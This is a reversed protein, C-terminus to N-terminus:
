LEVSQKTLCGNVVPHFISYQSVFHCHATGDSPFALHDETQYNKNKGSYCSKDNLWQIIDMCDHSCVKLLGVKLAEKFLTFHSRTHRVHRSLASIQLNTEVCYGSWALSCMLISSTFEHIVSCLSFFIVPLRQVTIREFNTKNFSLHYCTQRKSQWVAPLTRRALVKRKLFTLQRM